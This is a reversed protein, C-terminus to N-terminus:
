ASEALEFTGDGYVEGREAKEVLSAPPEFRDGYKIALDRARTVFAKLGYSNIFQLTGGTWPPFGIGMISGINADRTSILVSEDLCRVTEISQAFLLRDKIDQLPIQADEQYFHDVLGQWVQKKKGEPYDFFGGGSAKGHRNNALMWDVTSDAPHPTYTKGEADLDKITQTRVKEALTITVEDVVSLPGVPCGSLYAANEISAVSIGEGVMAVSEMTYTSFIRTTYFGRSDNVVIPVKGIQQVFDYAQALCQDSTKEGCIIEVLPMKDVPSFFHLGIYNDPRQAAQALGTIPLSSTNSAFITTSSTNTETERTVSAKLNRDEFVAEVVMDCGQLDSADASPTILALTTDMKESSIRGRDVQKQLQKRAYDKGKEANELSIDKLITPIGSKACTFAIGAGMMGAGLVAVKDFRRPEVGQPRCAGSKIENLQFFFTGIMNKAVQGSALEAFYRSEIRCASEFDVQAGEVITSLITEPAPQVGRTKQRMMAPAIPLLQAMAPSSPKGGPMKYGKKDWPQVAEPNNGIWAVAAQLMEEETDVIQDVLGADMGAQPKFQKGEVLYPMAGQIGLMRVTRTIGGAGPLLGLSVEPLGLMVGRSLCVRHHCSLALEWGGGLAAGNICAVVPKGSTEWVRVAKKIRTCNDYASHATDENIQYVQNLNAGAFFTKKASRIIVGNFEDQQLREVVADLSDMFADDMINASGQPNDLVLHVINHEDKEYRISTM